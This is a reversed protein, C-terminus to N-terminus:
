HMKGITEEAVSVTKEISTKVQKSIQFAIMARPLLGIV